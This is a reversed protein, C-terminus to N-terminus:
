ASLVPLLDNGIYITSTPDSAMGSTFAGMINAVKATANEEFDYICLKTGYRTTAVLNNDLDIEVESFFGKIQIDTYEFSLGNLINFFQMAYKIMDNNKVCSPITGVKDVSLKDADAIKLGELMICSYDGDGGTNSDTADVLMGEYDFLYYKSDSNIAFLPLRESVTVTVKSPFVMEIRDIKLYPFEKQVANSFESKNFAFVNKGLYNNVYTQLEVKSVKNLNNINNIEIQNISFLLAFLGILLALVFVIILIIFLVGKKKM